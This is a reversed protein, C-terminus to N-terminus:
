TRILLVPLEARALVGRATAAQSEQLLGRWSLAVLDEGNEAAFRLTVADPRGRRHFLRLEAQPHLYTYFRYLFEESWAPWDYQPYDLYRPSTFSGTELPPKKGATAIHLIDIDLGLERAVDFVQKIVCDALPAGELPVLMRRPRWDPGPPKRMAARIVLIPITARQMLSLATGGVVKQPSSTKGQGSMVIMRAGVQLAFDLVAKVVEGELRHLVYGGEEPYPLRLHEALGHEPLPSDTVHVVHVVARTLRAVALAAGLARASAESGDLPLVLAPRGEGSM